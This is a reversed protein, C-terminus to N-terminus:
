KLMIFAGMRGTEGKDRRYSYFMKDNCYTCLNSVTINEDKIGKEKLVIKNAIKLDLKYKERGVLSIFQSTDLFNKNFERYVDFGVEYCCVGISPGIGVLINKPNSNFLFIFRDIMKSAIRNVTGRWGAHALGVAKNETDLFFIPVCDAYITSLLIDEKDTILGDIEKYDKVRTIGKGKDNNTVYLINTKHVQDSLVINDLTTGFYKTVINYNDIINNYLDKTNFGFNLSEYKGKSVGGIRTTFLHKVLNTKDFSDITLYVMENFCRKNFRRNM